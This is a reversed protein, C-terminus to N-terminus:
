GDQPRCSQQHGPTLVNKSDFRTKAAQVTQWVPGRFTRSAFTSALASGLKRRSRRARM